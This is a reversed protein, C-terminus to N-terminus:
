AGFQNLHHDIHKYFMNNWERKTLVGFSHSERGEFANEGEDNAKALYRLLQEREKEFDKKDVVLFAPATRSNKKYPKEGVVVPKIFKKLLFKKFGKPKEFKDTYLMEYTVSCHALMQAVDMKGWKPQSNADLKNIRECVETYVPLEFINKIM